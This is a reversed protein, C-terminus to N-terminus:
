LVACQRDQAMLAVFIDDQELQTDPAAPQVGGQHWYHLGRFLIDNEEEGSRGSIM